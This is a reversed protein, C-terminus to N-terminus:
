SSHVRGLGDAWYYNGFPLLFQATSWWWYLSAGIDEGEDPDTTGPSSLEDRHIDWCQVGVDAQQAHFERVFIPGAEFGIERRLVGILEQVDCDEWSYAPPKVPKDRLDLREERLFRGQADFFMIVPQKGEAALVPQGGPLHGADIGYGIHIGDLPFRRTFPRELRVDWDPRERRVWVTLEDARRDLGEPDDAGIGGWMQVLTLNRLGPLRLLERCTREDGDAGIWVTLSQLGTLHPSRALAAADSPNLWGALLLERLGALAGCSAIEAGCGLTGFVVLRQLAPCDRRLEQGHKLLLTLGIEASAVFGRRFQAEFRRGHEEELSALGSLWVAKHKRLLEEERQLQRALPWDKDPFDEGPPIM